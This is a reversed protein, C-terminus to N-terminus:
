EYLHCRVLHGEGLDKIVPDVKSCVDMKKHCRLHFGCGPPMNVPSPIEGKSIVQAPKLAEEEETIVPISSLLLQTYPHQPNRFFERTPAIECLKGLYMIAVRSAVNRMLSLDHTIFLYSLQFRKQFDRLMNIIKAQVSVDLASTPEDLIIFSPSTALARAIGIMQKEGGSLMPPYKYIYDPPLQVLELLEIIKEIREKRNRGIKHVKLPMDLTQQVTRAPNLSSGPDQFVIQLRKKQTLTRKASERSIDEGEFTIRGSTPRYAGVLTYAVTSKGSGSEGVLGFTEGKNISFSIGDAAKVLGQQTPFHKKLDELVLISM